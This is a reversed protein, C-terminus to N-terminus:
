ADGMQFSKEYVYLTKIHNCRVLNMNMFGLYDYCVITSKRRRLMQSFYYM